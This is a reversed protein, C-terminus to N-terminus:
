APEAVGAAEGVADWLAQGARARIADVRGRHAEMDAADVVVPPRPALAAARPLQVAIAETGTLSPGALGL